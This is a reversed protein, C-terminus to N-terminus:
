DIVRVRERPDRGGSLGYCRQAWAAGDKELLDIGRAPDDSKVLVSRM